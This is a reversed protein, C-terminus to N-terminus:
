AARALEGTMGQGQDFGFGAALAPRPRTTAAVTVVDPSRDASHRGVVVLMSPMVRQTVICLATPATVGVAVRLVLGAYPGADILNLVVASLLASAPLHWLYIPLSYAGLRRFLTSSPMMSGIAVFGAIGVAGAVLSSTAWIPAMGALSLLHLLMGAAGAAYIANRHPRSIGGAAIAAGTYFFPLLVIARGISFLRIDAFLGSASVCLATGAVIWLHRNEIRGTMDLLCAIMLLMALAQLYWLHWAGFSLADGLHFGRGAVQDIACCILSALLFPPALRGTRRAWGRPTLPRHGRQRGYLYGTIAIFLPMRVFVFSQMLYAIATNALAPDSGVAHFVVVLICALGRVEDVRMHRM